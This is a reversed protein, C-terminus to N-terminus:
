FLFYECGGFYGKPSLKAATVLLHSKAIGTAGILLIHSHPRDKENQVCSALALLVLFKPLNMGYIDPDFSAILHDRAGFEGKENLLNFWDEEVAFKDEESLTDVKNEIQRISNAKLVFENEMEMNEYVPKQRNELTGFVFIGDGLEITDALDDEVTVKLLKAKNLNELGETLVIEQMLHAYRKFQVDPRVQISADCSPCCEPPEFAFHKNYLGHCVIVQGCKRNTCIYEKHHEVYRTPSISYVVGKVQFLQGCKRYSPFTKATDPNNIFRVTVFKKISAGPDLFFEGRAKMHITLAAQTATNWKEFEKLPKDFLKQYLDPHNAKLDTM